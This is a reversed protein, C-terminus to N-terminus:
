KKEPSCYVTSSTTSHVSTKSGSSSTSASGTSHSDQSMLRRAKASHTPVFTAHLKSDVATKRDFEMKTALNEMFASMKKFHERLDLMTTSMTHQSELNSLLRQNMEAFQQATLSRMAEMDELINQQTKQSEHMQATARDLKDHVAAVKKDLDDIRSFQLEMSILRDSAKQGSVDLALLKQQMSKELEQFRTDMM